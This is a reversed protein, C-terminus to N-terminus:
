SLGGIHNVNDEDEKELQKPTKAQVVVSSGTDPNPAKRPNATIVEATTDDEPHEYAYSQIALLSEFIKADILKSVDEPVIVIISHEYDQTDAKYTAHLWSTGGSVKYYKFLLNSRIEDTTLMDLASM